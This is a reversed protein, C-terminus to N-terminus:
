VSSWTWAVSYNRAADKMRHMISGSTEEAELLGIPVITFSDAGIKRLLEYINYTFSDNFDIIIIRNEINYHVCDESVM